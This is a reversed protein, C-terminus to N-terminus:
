SGELFRSPLPVSGHTRVSVVARGAAHTDHFIWFYLHGGAGTEFSVGFRRLVWVTLFLVLAGEILGIAAGGLANLAHLGPLRPGVLDLARILLKLLVTLGVFSLLFLAAYLISEAM